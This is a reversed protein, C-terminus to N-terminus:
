FCLKRWTIKCQHQSFTVLNQVRLSERFLKYPFIPIFEGTKSCESSTITANPLHPQLLSVCSPVTWGLWTRLEAYAAWCSWVTSGQRTMDDMSVHICLYAVKQLASNELICLIGWFNLCTSLPTSDVMAVSINATRCISSLLEASNCGSWLYGDVSVHICLADKFLKHYM